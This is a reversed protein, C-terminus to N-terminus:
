TTYITKMVEGVTIPKLVSIYPTASLKIKSRRLVCILGLGVM